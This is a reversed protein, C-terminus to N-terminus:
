FTCQNAPAFGTGRHTHGLWINIPFWLPVKNRQAAQNRWKCPRPLYFFIHQTQIWINIDFIHSSLMVFQVTPMKNRMTGANCRRGVKLGDQNKCVVMYVLGTHFFLKKHKCQSWVLRTIVATVRKLAMQVSSTETGISTCLSYICPGFCFHASLHISRGTIIIQFKLPHFVKLNKRKIFASSSINSFARFCM